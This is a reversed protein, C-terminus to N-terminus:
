HDLNSSTVPCLLLPPPTSLEADSHHKLWVCQSAPSHRTSSHRHMIHVIDAVIEDESSGDQPMVKAIARALLPYDQTVLLGDTAYRDFLQHVRAQVDDM